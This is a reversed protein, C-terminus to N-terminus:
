LAKGANTVPSYYASRESPQMSNRGYAFRLKRCIVKLNDDFRKMEDPDLEKLPHTIQSPDNHAIHADTNNSPISNDVADQTDPVNNIKLLSTVQGHTSAEKSSQQPTVEPHKKAPTAGFIDNLTKNIDELQDEATKSPKVREPTVQVQKSEGFVGFYISYINNRVWRFIKKVRRVISWFGDAFLSTIRRSSESQRYQAGNKKRKKGYVVGVSYNGVAPIFLSMILSRM